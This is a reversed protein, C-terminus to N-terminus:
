TIIFWLLKYELYLIADFQATCLAFVDREIRAHLVNDCAVPSYGLIHYHGHLGTGCQLYLITHSYGVISVHEKFSCAVAHNGDCFTVVVKAFYSIEQIVIGVITVKVIDDKAIEVVDIKMSMAIIITHYPVTRDEVM